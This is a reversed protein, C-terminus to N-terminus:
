ETVNPAYTQDRIVATEPVFRIWRNSANNVTARFRSDWHAEDDGLYRRLLRRAREPEWSEVTANGRFGAHHVRGISADFDVIGIACRPEAAIRLPFTDHDNAIIWSRM